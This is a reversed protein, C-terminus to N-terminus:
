TITLRGLADKLLVPKHQLDNRSLVLSFLAKVTNCVQADEFTLNLSRLAPRLYTLICFVVLTLHTHIIHM